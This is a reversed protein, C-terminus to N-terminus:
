KKDGHEHSEPEIHVIVDTVGEIHKKIIEEIHSALDHAEAIPMENAVLIHLDVHVDDRRGRTRIEHCARIKPVSLVLDRIQSEDVVVRDCLVDSSEKVIGFAAWGIFGAIFLTTIADMMPFGLKVAILSVLVSVSTLIDSQTHLADCVLVDSQLERGKNKEYVMVAWNVAMTILMVAFSIGTVEPTHPQYFMQFADKVLFVSIVILLAAIALAAFTEYKKHGYPHHEDPPQSAVSIGVMGIINSAGDAFSHIGDAFMSGSHSMWGYIVKALAVLWNLVLIAGLVYFIKQYRGELKSM